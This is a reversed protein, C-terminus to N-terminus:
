SDGLAAELVEADVIPEDPIADAEDPRGASLRCAEPVEDSFPLYRDVRGPESLRADNPMETLVWELYARQNLGNLKATVVISYIAASAEAGRPTDSFLFNKRGIVFSKICRESINNDLGLRGDELVNTVYPWYKLAYSLAKHLALGPVAKTVAVAAWEGFSEMLPGLKKERAKRRQEHGMEDFKADTRFIRDIRRRAELAISDAGECARDGGASKVIEAFKRRVHVLCATNTM